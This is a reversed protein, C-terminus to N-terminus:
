SVTSINSNGNTILVYFRQAAYLIVILISIISFIGGLVTNFSGGKKNYNLIIKKGFFDARKITKKLFKLIEM